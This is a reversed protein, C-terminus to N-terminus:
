GMATNAWPGHQGLSTNVAAALVSFLSLFLSFTTHSIFCLASKQKNKELCV